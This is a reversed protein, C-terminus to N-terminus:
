IVRVGINIPNITYEFLETAPPEEALAIGYEAKQIYTREGLYKGVYMGVDAGFRFARFTPHGEIGRYLGPLSM